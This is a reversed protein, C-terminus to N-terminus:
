PDVAAPPIIIEEADGTTLFEDPTGRVDDAGVDHAVLFYPALLHSDAGPHLIEEIQFVFIDPLSGERGERAAGTNVAVTIYHGRLIIERKRDPELASVQAESGSDMTKSELAAATGDAFRHHSSKTAPSARAAPETEGGLMM